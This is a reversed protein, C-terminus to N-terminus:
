PSSKDHSGFLSDNIIVRSQVNGTASTVLPRQIVRPKRHDITVLIERPVAGRLTSKVLDASWVGSFNPRHTTPAPTEVYKRKGARRAAAPERTTGGAPADPLAIARACPLVRDTTLPQGHIARATRRRSSARSLAPHGHPCSPVSGSVRDPDRDVVRNKRTAIGSLMSTPRRARPQPRIAPMLRIWVRRVQAPPPSSPRPM